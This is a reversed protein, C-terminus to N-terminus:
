VVIGRRIAIAVIHHRNAADLKKQIEGIYWDITHTSIKMAKSIEQSTKGACLFHIVEMERKTLEGAGNESYDGNDSAASKTFQMLGDFVFKAVQELIAIQSPKLTKAEGAMTLSGRLGKSGHIPFVYGEKLGHSEATSLMKRMKREDPSKKFHDMAEDWDFGGNAVALYRLAPDHLVFKKSIYVEPWGEPWHGALVMTPLDDSARAAKAFWFHEFGFHRVINEFDDILDEKTPHLHGRDLINLAEFDEM